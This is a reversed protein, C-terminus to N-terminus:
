ARTAAKLYTTVSPKESTTVLMSLGLLSFFGWHLPRLSLSEQSPSCCGCLDWPLLPDPMNPNHGHQQFTSTQPRVPNLSTAFLKRLMEQVNKVKFVRSQRRWPVKESQM